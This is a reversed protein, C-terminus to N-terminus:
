FIKHIFKKVNTYNYNANGFIGLYQIYDTMNYLVYNKWEKNNCFNKYENYSFKKTCSYILNGGFILRTDLDSYPNSIPPGNVLLCTNDNGRGVAYFGNKKIQFINSNDNANTLNFGM